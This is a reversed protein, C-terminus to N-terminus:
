LGGFSVPFCGEVKMLFGSKMEWYLVRLELKLSGPRSKQSWGAVRFGLEVNGARSWMGQEVLWIRRQLFRKNVPIKAIRGEAGCFQRRGKLLLRHRPM